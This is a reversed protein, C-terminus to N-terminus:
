LSACSKVGSHSSSKKAHGFPCPNISVISFIVHKPSACGGLIRYFQFLQENFLSWLMKGVIKKILSPSPIFFNNSYDDTLRPEEAQSTMPMYPRFFAAFICLNRGHCSRCAICLGRAFFSVVNSLHPGTRSTIRFRSGAPIWCYLISFWLMWHRYELIQM